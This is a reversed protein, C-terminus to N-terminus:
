FFEFVRNWRKEMGPELGIGIFCEPCFCHLDQWLKFKLPPFDGREVIKRGTAAHFLSYEYSKPRQKWQGEYLGRDESWVFREMGMEQTDLRYDESVPEFNFAFFNHSYEEVWFPRGGINRLQCVIIVRNKVLSISKELYYGYGTDSRSGGWFMVQNDGICLEYEEPELEPLEGRCINGTESDDGTGSGNAAKHFVGARPKKFKGVGPKLYYEGAGAEQYGIPASACFESCIGFGMSYGGKELRERTLYCCGDNKRIVQRVTGAHDFRRQSSDMPEVVVLWEENELKM